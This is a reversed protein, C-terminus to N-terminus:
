TLQRGVGGGWGCHGLELEIVSGFVFGNIRADVLVVACDYTHNAFDIRKELQGRTSFM